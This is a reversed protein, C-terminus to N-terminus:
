KYPPTPAFFEDSKLVGNMSRESVHEHYRHCALCSTEAGGTGDSAKPAHCRVCSELSPLLVDRTETSTKAQGHCELCSASQHARHDFDSHVYWRRPGGSLGTPLTEVPTEIAPAVTTPTTAPLTTPSPIARIREIASANMPPGALERLRNAAPSDSLDHCLVCGYNSGGNRAQRVIATEVAAADLRGTTGPFKGNLTKVADQVWQEPTLTVTKTVMESSFASKKVRQVKNLATKREKEPLRDLAARLPTAPDSAIGKIALRVIDMSQHPVVLLSKEDIGLRHCTACDRQYSVPAFYKAGGGASEAGPRHCQTCNATEGALPKVETQHRAHNFRLPTPDSLPQPSASWRKDPTLSRGLPPHSGIAFATVHPQVAPSHDRSNPVLDGHCQVCTSNSRSILQEHTRHEQHCSTCNASHAPKSDANLSVLTAQNPDHIAADHCRLCANDSVEKFFGGGPNSEHCWGCRNGDWMAHASTLPGPSFPTQDGRGFHTGLITLGVVCCIAIAIRRVLRSRSARNIYGPELRNALAKASREVAM